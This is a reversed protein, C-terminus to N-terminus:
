SGGGRRDPFDPDEVIVDIVVISWEGLDGEGDGRASGSDSCSNGQCGASLDAPVPAQQLPRTDIWADSVFVIFRSLGASDLGFDNRRQIGYAPMAPDIGEGAPILRVIGYRDDLLLASVFRPQNTANTLTMVLRKEKEVRIIRDAPEPCSQAAHDLQQSLCFGIRAKEASVIPLSLLRQADYIPRLASRLRDPFDPHDLHGLASLATGDDTWLNVFAQDSCNTTALSVMGSGEHGTLRVFDLQQLATALRGIPQPCQQVAVDLRFDGAAHETERALLRAPLADARGTELRLLAHGDEVSAISGRAVPQIDDAVAATESAFLAFKSGETIGLLRGANLRVTEGQATADYLVVSKNGGRLSALLNGEAQPHQGSHGAREVSLRVATALDGFTADPQSVLERALATTFVGNVSGERGTERAEEDDRAAGFHVRYGGGPGEAALQFDFAAHTAAAISRVGRSVGDPQVSGAGWTRVGTGSNCADFISVVNVGRANAIDIVQRLERDLIDTSVNSDPNRADAPLLSSNYGSAQDLVQDDAVRSGHGAFFFIVTDGPSSAEIQERLGAFIAARTACSDTLTISIANSSKCAGDVPEDLDLRYAIQLARKIAAADAVAGNLDSFSAFRDHTRSYLYKDIGVFLGRIAPEAHAVSSLCLALLFLPWRLTM